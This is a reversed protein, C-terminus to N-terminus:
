ELVGRKATIDKLEIISDYKKKQFVIQILFITWYLFKLQSLNRESEVWTVDRAMVFKFLYYFFFRGTGPTNLETNCVTQYTPEFRLAYRNTIWVPVANNLLEVNYLHETNSTTWFSHKKCGVQRVDVCMSDKTVAPDM